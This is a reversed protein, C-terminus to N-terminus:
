ASAAQRQAREREWRVVSNNRSFTNCYPVLDNMASMLRDARERDASNEDRVRLSIHGTSKTKHPYILIRVGEGTLKAVQYPASCLNFTLGERQAFAFALDLEKSWVALKGARRKTFPPEHHLETM